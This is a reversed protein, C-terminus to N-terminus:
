SIGSKNEIPSEIKVGMRKNLETSANYWEEEIFKMVEILKAIELKITEHNKTLTDMMQTIESNGMKSLDKIEESM